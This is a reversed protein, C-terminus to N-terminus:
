IPTKTGNLCIFRPSSFICFKLQINERITTFGKHLLNISFKERNPLFQRPTKMTFGFSSFVTMAMALTSAAMPQRTRIKKGHDVGLPMSPIIVPKNRLIDLKRIVEKRYPLRPFSPLVSRTKGFIERM